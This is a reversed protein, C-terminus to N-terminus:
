KHRGGAKLSTNEKFDFYSYEEGAKINVKKDNITVDVSDNNIRDVRIVGLSGGESVPSNNITVTKKGSGDVLISGITITTPTIRPPVVYAPESIAPPVDGELRHGEISCRPIGGPGLEYTGGAPCVPKAEIYNPVLDEWTPVVGEKGTDIGWKAVAVYIEKLNAICNDRANSASEKVAVPYQRMFCGGIRGVMILAIVIAVAIVIKRTSIGGFWEGCHKCKVANIEVTGKCYPCNKSTKEKTIKEEAEPSAVNVLPIGCNLCTRWSSDYTKLCKPCANKGVKDLSIVYLGKEQLEKVATKEDQAEIEGDKDIGKTDKACYRFVPSMTTRGKREKKFSIKMWKAFTDPDKLLKEDQLEFIKDLVKDDFGCGEIIREKRVPARAASTHYLCMGRAKNDYIAIKNKTCTCRKNWVCSFSDCFIVSTKNQGILVVSMTVVLFIIVLM